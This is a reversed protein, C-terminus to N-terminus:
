YTKNAIASQIKDLEMRSLCTNRLYDGDKKIWYREEHGEGDCEEISVKAAQERSYEDIREIEKTLDDRLQVIDSYELCDSGIWTKDEMFGQKVYLRTHEEVNPCQEVIIELGM